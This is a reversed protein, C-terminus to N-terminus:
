FNATFFDQGCPNSKFYKVPSIGTFHKFENILHAQDYYGGTIAVDVLDTHPSTKLSKFVNKFRLNRCFQKPTLGTREKFRRDLNRRSMGLTYALRDISIRGKYREITEIAATVALDNEKSKGLQDLLYTNIAAIRSTVTLYENHICEILQSSEGECINEADAYQDVLAYAPARFFPYSGGPRFCIGLLKVRGTSRLRMPRVMPGTVGTNLLTGILGDNSVYDVPSALSFMFELGETLLRRGSASGPITEAELTWYCKIYPKLSPPPQYERYIIM